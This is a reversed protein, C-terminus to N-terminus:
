SSSTCLIAASSFARRGNKSASSRYSKTTSRKTSRIVVNHRLLPGNLRFFRLFPTTDLSRLRERAVCKVNPRRVAHSTLITVDNFRVLNFDDFSSM